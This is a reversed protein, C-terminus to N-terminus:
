EYEEPDIWDLNVYTSRIWGIQDEILIKIWYEHRSTDEFKELILFPIFGKVAAGIDNYSFANPNEWLPISGQGTYQYLQGIRNAAM